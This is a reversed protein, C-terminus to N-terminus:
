IRPAIRMQARPKPAREELSAQAQQLLAALETLKQLCQSAVAKHPQTYDHAPLGHLVEDWRGDQMSAELDRSLRETVGLFTRLRVQRHNRWGESHEGPPAFFRDVLRRAAMRGAVSLNQIHRDPMDLNLGGEDPLQSVQVIRDRYGPYPFLIEDRWNQMTDIISAVFGILGPLPQADPPAPWYRQRGGQNSEPLYVRGEQQEPPRRPEIRHDPHEAKLNVAFTPHRPLPSDFFHLPMNSAIGGDSFWIRTAQLPRPATASDRGNVALSFDV